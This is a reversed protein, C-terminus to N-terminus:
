EWAFRPNLVPSSLLRSRETTNEVLTCLEQPEYSIHQDAAPKDLNEGPAFLVAERDKQILAAVPTLSQEHWYGTLAHIYNRNTFLAADLDMSGLLQRLANQRSRCLEPKLTPKQIRM